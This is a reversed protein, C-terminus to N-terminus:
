DREFKLCLIQKTNETVKVRDDIRWGVLWIIQQPSCVIPVRRRWLRPIKADIKRGDEWELMRNTGHFAEELSVQLAHESDRGRRPRAEYYFQQAGAGGGAQQQAARGFLNEFFDSYGGEAGFLEEFEEPSVTRHSYSQGPASQWESWNFDDPSGGTRQYQQWQAGLQDYKERKEPDSLVEHAENIEQFKEASGKDGQNVEFEVRDGDQLGRFGEVGSQHVFVDKSGDSPTIFGFRKTQDFWKVAGQM